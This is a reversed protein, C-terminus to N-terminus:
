ADSLLAKLRKQGLTTALSLLIIGAAVVVAYSLSRVTDLSGDPLLGKSQLTWPLAQVMISLLVFAISTLMTVLLKGTGRGSKSSGFEVKMTFDPFYVDLLIQLSSVGLTVSIGLLLSLWVPLQPVGAVKAGVLALILILFGPLFAYTMKAWFLEIPATPNGQLIWFSRGERSVSIGGTQASTVAGMLSAMMIVLAAMMDPGQGTPRRATNFLFFGIVIASTVLGYWVIPDRFLTTTDKKLVAWYTGKLRSMPGSPGARSVRRVAPKGGEEARGAWGTLYTRSSVRVTLWASLVAGLCLAAFYPRYDIGFRPITGLVARVLWTSPLYWVGGLGSAGIQRLLAEQSGPSGMDSVKAGLIQSVLVVVVGGVASVAIFVQKMKRTPLYRMAVLLVLSLISHALLLFLSFGLFAVIHFWFGAGTAHGWGIWEPLGLGLVLAALVAYSIVFKALFVSQVPIPQMLLFGIDDSEYITKYTTQLGTMFVMVLSFLAVGNLINLGVADALGPVFGLASQVYTFLRFSGYYFGFVIGVFFLISVVIGLTRKPSSKGGPAFLSRLDRKLIMSVYEM